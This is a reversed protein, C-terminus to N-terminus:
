LELSGYHFAMFVKYGDGQPVLAVGAGVSNWDEHYITRYHSGNYSAESLYFALTNDMAKKIQENTAGSAYDWSINETFYNSKWGDESYRETFDLGKADIWQHMSKGDPRDHSTVGSKAMYEAWETATARWRDDLVLLRLGQKARLENIKSLWYQNLADLDIGAPVSSDPLLEKKEEKVPTSTKKDTIVYKEFEGAGIQELDKNTIGLSLERMIRYAEEGDKLYHLTLKEPHVYYAEGHAQVKLVIRGKINVLVSKDGKMARDLDTNSIGLGFSRMMEYATAGDKMYFRTGKEPHVYWAEGNKEVQLLIHGKVRERLVEKPPKALKKAAEKEVLAREQEKLLKEKEALKRAYEEESKLKEQEKIKEYSENKVTEKKVDTSGNKSTISLFDQWVFGKTGDSLQIKYWGDAEGLITVSTGGPVTRVVNSDMCTRDRMNVGSKIQGTWNVPTVPYNCDITALASSPMSLGAALVIAVSLLSLRAKM